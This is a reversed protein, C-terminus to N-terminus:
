FGEKGSSTVKNTKDGHKTMTVKLTPNSIYSSKKTTSVLQSLMEEVLYDCEVWLCMVMSAVLTITLNFGLGKTYQCDPMEQGTFFVLAIEECLFSLSTFVLPWPFLEFNIKPTSTYKALLNLVSMSALILFM